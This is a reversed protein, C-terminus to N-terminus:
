SPAGPRTRFATHPCVLLTPLLGPDTLKLVNDEARQEVVVGRVFERGGVACLGSMRRRGPAHGELLGVIRDVGTRLDAEFTSAHSFSSTPRAPGVAVYQFRSQDARQLEVVVRLRAEPVGFLVGYLWAAHARDLEDCRASNQGLMGCASTLSQFLVSADVRVATRFQSAYQQNVQKRQMASLAPGIGDDLTGLALGFDYDSAVLLPENGVWAADRAQYTGIRADLDIASIAHNLPITRLESTSQRAERSQVASTPPVPLPSACGPGLMLM